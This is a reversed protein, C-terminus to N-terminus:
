CWRVWVPSFGKAHGSAWQVELKARFPSKFLCMRTWVPSFDKCHPRGPGGQGSEPPIGSGTPLGRGDSGALLVLNFFLWGGGARSDTFWEGSRPMGRSDGTKPDLAGKGQPIWSHQTGSCNKDQGYRGKDAGDGRGLDGQGQIAWRVADQTGGEPGEGGGRLFAARPGPGELGTRFVEAQAKAQLRNWAPGVLADERHRVHKDLVGALDPRDAGAARPGRDLPPHVERDVREPGQAAHAAQHVLGERSHEVGGIAMRGNWALRAGEGVPATAAGSANMRCAAKTVSGAGTDKYRWQSTSSPVPNWATERWPSTTSTGHNGTFVAESLIAVNATRGGPLLPVPARM